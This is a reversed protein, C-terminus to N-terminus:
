SEEDLFREKYTVISKHLSKWEQTIDNKKIYVIFDDDKLIIDSIVYGKYTKGGVAYYMADKLNDGVGIKRFCDM